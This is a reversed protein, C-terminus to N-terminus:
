MGLLKFSSVCIYFVFFVFHKYNCKIFMRYSAEEEDENGCVCVCVGNRETKRQAIQALLLNDIIIVMM